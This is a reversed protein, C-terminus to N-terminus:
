FGFVVMFFARQGVSASAGTDSMRSQLTLINSATFINNILDPASVTGGGAIKFNSSAIPSKMAFDNTAYNQGYTMVSKPPNSKGTFSYTVICNPGDTITATVGATQSQLSDVGALTGSAGATYKFVVIEVGGTSAGGSTASTIRGKSDVVINANTYSGAVVGTNSLTTGFTGTGSGTVDGTLTITQDGTNTGSLNSGTITGSSNVSTPTIAGLSFTLSGSTTIPGGTVTIGNNGTANVSTVTGTGSVAVWSTNTGDTTLFKGTNGSQSPLLANLGANATTAGTGGNAISLTGGLTMVGSITIPSGSVTLGTTGGSLGVSTVTGASLATNTVATIRGYTDVTIVPIQTSSGYTNASVGTTALDLTISGSSTIPGGTSTIRGATGNVGVSTVTGNGATSSITISGPGNTISINTGATLTAKSLTNGASNGILLQGNTFSTQGTGGHSVSVTGNVNASNGTIDGSIDAGSITSSSSLATGDSKLYGATFGTQGTGGNAIGLTGGLTIVGSDTIPGGTTTLGTTGGSVSISTVTGTGAPGNSISTIRGYSDVTINSSTYSGPTVGTTELDLTITGAATIPSGSSTIRGATGNVSISTVTGTGGVAVWTLNGAGDTSLVKGNNGSQNPLLAAAASSATTAGTGGNAISLVGGLTIVGSTTIPGGTTTLGTTGGSVNISTVTGTNTPTNILDNYDGTYAVTALGTISSAPITTSYILETGASNWQVYGNPLAPKATDSLGAFSYTSNTPKNSLTNFDVFLNEWLGSGSNYVLAQGNQKSLPNDVNPSVDLLQGLREAGGSGAYSNVFAKRVSDYVLTQGDMIDRIYFTPVYQNLLSNVGVIAM